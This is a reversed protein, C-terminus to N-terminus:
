LCNCAISGFTCIGKIKPSLKPRVIQALKKELSMLLIVNLEFDSICLIPFM